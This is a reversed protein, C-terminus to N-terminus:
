SSIKRPKNMPSAKVMARTRARREKPSLRKWAKRRKDGQLTRYDPDQWLRKSAVKRKAEHEPLHSIRQARLINKIMKKRWKPDKWKKRINAGHLKRSKTSVELAFNGGHRDEHCNSCLLVIGDKDTGGHCRPKLHHRHLSRRFTECDSCRGSNMNMSSRTVTFIIMRQKGNGTFIM